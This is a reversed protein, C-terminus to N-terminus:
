SDGLTYDYKHYCKKVKGEQDGLADAIRVHEEYLCLAKMYDGAYYM